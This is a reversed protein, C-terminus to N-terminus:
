RIGVTQSKNLQTKVAVLNSTRGTQKTVHATLGSTIPYSTKVTKTGKTGVPLIQEYVAYIAALANGDGGSASWPDALFTQSTKFQTGVGNNPHYDIDTQTSTDDLQVALWYDTGPSLRFNLGTVRVWGEATGKANVTRSYLLNVPNDFFQDKFGSYIGIEFNAEETAGSVYWGMEIIKSDFGLNPTTDKTAHSRTDIQIPTEAPDATPATTVFGSNIGMVLAM